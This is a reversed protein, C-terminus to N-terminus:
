HYTYTHTRTHTPPHTHVYVIHIRNTHTVTHSNTHTCAHTRPHTHLKGSPVKQAIATPNLVAVLTTLADSEIVQNIKKWSASTDKELWTQLLNKCCLCNDKPSTQEIKDITHKDIELLTGILRWHVAYKPVILNCLNAQKPQSKM